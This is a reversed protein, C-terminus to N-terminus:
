QTAVRTEEDDTDSLQPAVAALPPHLPSGSM